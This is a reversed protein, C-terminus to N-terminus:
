VSDIVDHANDKTTAGDAATLNPASQEDSELEPHRKPTMFLAAAAGVIIGTVIGAWYNKPEEAM